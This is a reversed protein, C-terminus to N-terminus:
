FLNCSDAHKGFAAQRMALCLDELVLPLIQEREEDKWAFDGPRWRRLAVSVWLSSKGRPSPHFGHDSEFSGFGAERDATLM